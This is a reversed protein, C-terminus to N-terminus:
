DTAEVGGRRNWEEPAHKQRGSNGHPSQWGMWHIETWVLLATTMSTLAYKADNLRRTDDVGIKVITALL